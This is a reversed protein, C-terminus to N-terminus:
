LFEYGGFADIIYGDSLQGLKGVDVPCREIQMVAVRVIHELLYTILKYVIHLANEDLVVLTEIGGLTKDIEVFEYFFIIVYGVYKETGIAVATESSM